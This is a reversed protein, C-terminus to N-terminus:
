LIIYLQVLLKKIILYIKENLIVLVLHKLLEKIEQLIHVQLQPMVEKQSIMLVLLERKHEM